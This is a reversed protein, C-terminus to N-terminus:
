QFPDEQNEAERNMLDWEILRILFYIAALLLIGAIAWAIPSTRIREFTQGAAATEPPLLM